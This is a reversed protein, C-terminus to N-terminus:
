NMDFNGDVRVFMWRRSYIQVIGVDGRKVFLCGRATRKCTTKDGRKLYLLRFCAVGKEQSPQFLIKGHCCMHVCRCLVHMQLHRLSDACIFHRMDFTRSHLHGHRVCHLLSLLATPAHLAAVHSSLYQHPCSDCLACVQKRTDMDWVRVTKDDGGTVFVRKSPHTQLCFM